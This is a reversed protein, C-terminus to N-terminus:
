RKPMRLDCMSVRVVTAASRASERETVNTVAAFASSSVFPCPHIQKNNLQKQQYDGRKSVGSAAPGVTANKLAACHKRHPRCRSAAQEHMASVDITVVHVKQYPCSSNDAEKM